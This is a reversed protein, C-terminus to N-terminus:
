RQNVTLPLREDANIALRLITDQKTIFPYVVALVFSERELRHFTWYKASDEAILGQVLNSYMGPDEETKDMVQLQRRHHRFLLLSLLIYPNNEDESNSSSSADAM